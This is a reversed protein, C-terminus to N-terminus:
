HHSESLSFKKLLREFYNYGRPHIIILGNCQGTVEIAKGPEIPYEYERGDVLATTKSDASRVEIKTNGPLVTQRTNIGIDHSCIPTLTVANLQPHIVSGQASLSYGTSGTSSAIVIGDARIGPLEYDDIKIIFETLRNYTGRHVLVDNIAHGPETRHTNQPASFQLTLRKEIIYHGEFILDIQQELDGAAIDMLFGLRGFHIGLIPITHGVLARAMHMFTGDGGCAVGLDIYNHMHNIKCLTVKNIMPYNNEKLANYIETTTYIICGNKIFVRVVYEIAALNIKHLDAKTVLGIKSFNKKM